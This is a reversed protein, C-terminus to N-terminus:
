IFFGRCAHAADMRVSTYRDYHLCKHKCTLRVDVDRMNQIICFGVIANRVRSINPEQLHTKAGRVPLIHCHAVMLDKKIGDFLNMLIAVDNGPEVTKGCRLTSTANDYSWRM